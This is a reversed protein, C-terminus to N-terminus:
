IYRPHRNPPLVKNHHLQHCYGKVIRGDQRGLVTPLKIEKDLTGIAPVYSSLTAYFNSIVFSVPLFQELAGRMAKGRLPICGNGGVM